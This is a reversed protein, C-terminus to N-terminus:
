KNAPAAPNTSQKLTALDKMMEATLTQTRERTRQVVLPMYEHAIKPQADLLHQGAPSQYFTIMASVDERSLYEQYLGTMDNLMEDVPYLNMAKDIYKRMLQEVQARQEPTLKTNPAAQATMANMQARVETEVLSPIIKRVSQMQGQVRMVEFLQSLQEKTARDEPAITPTAQEQTMTGSPSVAIAQGVMPLPAM